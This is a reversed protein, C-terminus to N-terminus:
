ASSLKGVSTALYSALFRSGQPFPLCSSLCPVTAAVFCATSFAMCLNLGRESSWVLKQTLVQQCSFRSSGHAEGQWSLGHNISTMKEFRSKHSNM